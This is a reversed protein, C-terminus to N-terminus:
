REHHSLDITYTLSAVLYFFLRSPEGPLTNLPKALHPDAVWKLRKTQLTLPLDVETDVLGFARRNKNDQRQTLTLPNDVFVGNLQANQNAFVALVAPEIFLSLGPKEVLNLYYSLQADTQVLNSTGFMYYTGASLTFDGVERSLYAETFNTLLKSDTEDKNFFWREYGLTYSWEQKKGFTGEKEVGLDTKFYNATHFDNFIYGTGYVSWGSSAAYKISPMQGWQRVGFTRGRYTVPNMYLYSIDLRNASPAPKRVSDALARTSDPQIGATLLHSMLLM